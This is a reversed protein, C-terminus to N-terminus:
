GGLMLGLLAFYPIAIKPNCMIPCVGGTFRSVNKSIVYGAAGGLLAGIIGGIM